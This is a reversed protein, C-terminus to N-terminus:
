QLQGGTSNLSKSGKTDGSGDAYQDENVIPEGEGSEPVYGFCSFLINRQKQIKTTIGSATQQNMEFTTNMSVEVKVPRTDNSRMEIAKSTDTPSQGSPAAQGSSNKAIQPKPCLDSKSPLPCEYNLFLRDTFKQNGIECTVYAINWQNCMNNCQGMLLKPGFKYRGQQGPFIMKNKCMGALRVSIRPQTNQAAPILPNICSVSFEFDQDM